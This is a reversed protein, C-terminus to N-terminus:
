YQVEMVFHSRGTRIEIRVGDQVIGGSLVVGQVKETWFSSVNGTYYM